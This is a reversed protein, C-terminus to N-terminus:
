FFTFFATDIGSLHTYVTHFSTQYIHPLQTQQFPIFTNDFLDFFPSIQYLHFFCLQTILALHAHLFLDLITDISLFWFLVRLNKLHHIISNKHLPELFTRHPLLHDVHPKLPPYLKSRTYSETDSSLHLPTPDEIKHIHVIDLQPQQRETKIVSPHRNNVFRKVTEPGQMYTPIDFVPLPLPLPQPIPTIPIESIPPRNTISTTHPFRTGSTTSFTNVKHSKPRKSLTLTNVNRTQSTTPTQSEPNFSPLSLASASTESSSDLILAEM